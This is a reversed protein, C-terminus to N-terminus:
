TDFGGFAKDPDLIYGIAVLVYCQLATTYNGSQVLRNMEPGYGPSAPMNIKVPTPYVWETVRKAAAWLDWASRRMADFADDLSTATTLAHARAVAKEDLKEGDSVFCHEQEILYESIKRLVEPLPAPHASIDIEAGWGFVELPDLGSQKLLQLARFMALATAYQCSGWACVGWAVDSLAYVFNDLEIQGTRYREALVKVADPDPRTWINSKEIQPETM